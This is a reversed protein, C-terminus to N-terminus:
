RGTKTKGLPPYARASCSGWRRTPACLARFGRFAQTPTCRRFQPIRENERVTHMRTHAYKYTRTHTHTHQRHLYARISYASVSWCPRVIRGGKTASSPGSSLNGHRECAEVIM